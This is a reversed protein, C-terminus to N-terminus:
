RELRTTVKRYECAAVSVAQQRKHGFADTNMPHITRRHVRQHTVCTGSSAGELWASGKKRIMSM